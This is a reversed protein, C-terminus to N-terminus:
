GRATGERRRGQQARDAAWVVDGSGPRNSARALVFLLDGLRNLYAAVQPNTGEGGVAWVRREARRCVTRAVHLWAAAPEGGPLVFQELPPLRDAFSDIWRELQEVHVPQVRWPGRGGVARAVPLSVDAGLAFLDQQVSRLIAAQEDALGTALVMGLMANLEDVAGCAEIRPHTKPVSTGDGLRTTGRDGARTYIRRRHVM